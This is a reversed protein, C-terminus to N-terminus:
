MSRGHWHIRGLVELREATDASLREPPYHEKNDSSLTITRDLNRHIRKIILGDPTRIAYIFGHQLQTHGTDVMVPDRDHMTPVMSDGAVHLIIAREPVVGLDRLFARAFPWSGVQEAPERNVAGPGASAAVDLIPVYIVDSGGMTSAPEGEPSGLGTALWELSVGCLRAVDAIDLLSPAGQANMWRDLTARPKKLEKVVRSLGGARAVADTLRKAFPQLEQRVKQRVDAM